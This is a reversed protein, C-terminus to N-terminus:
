FLWVRHVAKPVTVAVAAGVAMAAWAFAFWVRVTIHRKVDHVAKKLDGVTVWEDDPDVVEIEDESTSADCESEDETEDCDEESSEDEPIDFDEESDEEEMLEEYKINVSKGLWKAINNFCHEYDYTKDGDLDSVMYVFIEHINEIVEDVDNKYGLEKRATLLEKIFEYHINREGKPANKFALKFLENIKM